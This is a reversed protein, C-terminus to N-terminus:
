RRCLPWFSVQRNEPWADQPPLRKVAASASVKPMSSISISEEPLATEQACVSQAISHTREPAAGLYRGVIIPRCKTTEVVASAVACWYNHFSAHYRRLAPL